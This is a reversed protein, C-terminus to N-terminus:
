TKIKVTQTYIMQNYLKIGNLFLFVKLLIRTEFLFEDTIIKMKM